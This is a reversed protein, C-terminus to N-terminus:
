VDTDWSHSYIIKAEEVLGKLESISKRIANRGLTSRVFLADIDGATTMGINNYYAEEKEECTATLDLLQEEINLILEMKKELARSQTEVIDHITQCRCFLSSFVCYQVHFLFWRVHCCCCCCGLCGLRVKQMTKIEEYHLHGLAKEFEEETILGDKDEDVARFAQRPFEKGEDLISPFHSHISSEFYAPKPGAAAPVATSSELLEDDEAPECVYEEDAEFDM